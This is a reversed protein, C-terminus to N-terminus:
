FSSRRTQAPFHATCTCCLCRTTNSDLVVGNNNLVYRSYVSGNSEMTIWLPATRSKPSEFKFHFKQPSYNTAPMAQINDIATDTRIHFPVSLFIFYSWFSACSSRNCPNASLLITGLGTPHSCGNCILRCGCRCRDFRCRNIPVEPLEAREVRRYYPAVFFGIPTIGQCLLPKSVTPPNPVM